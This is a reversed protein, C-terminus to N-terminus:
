SRPIGGSLSICITALLKIPAAKEYIVLAPLFLVSVRVCNRVFVDAHFPPLQPTRILGPSATESSHDPEPVRKSLLVFVAFSDAVAVTVKPHTSEEPALPGGRCRVYSRLKIVHTRGSAPGAQRVLRAFTNEVLKAPVALVITKSTSAALTRALFTSCNRKFSDSCKCQIIGAKKIKAGSWEPLRDEGALNYWPYCHGSGVGVAHICNIMLICLESGFFTTQSISFSVSEAFRFCRASSFFLNYVCRRRCFHGHKTRGEKHGRQQGQKQHGRWLDRGLWGIGASGQQHFGYDISPSSRHRLHTPM